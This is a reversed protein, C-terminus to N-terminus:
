KREKVRRIKNVKRGPKVETKGSGRYRTDMEKGLKEAGQDVEEINIELGDGEEEREPTWAM